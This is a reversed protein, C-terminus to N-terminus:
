EIFVSMVPTVPLKLYVCLNELHLEKNVDKKKKKKKSYPNPTGRPSANSWRM